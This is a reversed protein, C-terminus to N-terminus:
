KNRSQLIAGVIGGIVAVILGFSTGIRDYYLGLPFIILCFIMCILSLIFKM